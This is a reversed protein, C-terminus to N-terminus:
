RIEGLFVSYAAVGSGSGDGGAGLMSRMGSRASGAGLDSGSLTVPKGSLNCAVVVTTSTRVGAAPRRVWVLADDADRDLLTETGNRLTANDRHLHILQRYFNLLSQPDNQEMAVNATAANVGTQSGDLTGATFGPLSNPDITVPQPDDSEVVTPLKPAPLSQRPPPVYPHFSEYAPKPAAPEEPKVEPPAAPKPTVNTPTWQMVPTKGAEAVLGLEQGAELIVATRSALLMAALARELGAQAAADAQPVVRAALMLPEGRGSSRGRAGGCAAGGSAAGPPGALGAALQARLGAATATTSVIPASATLQTEKLLAAALDTDAHAPPGAILVRGGPFSNTLLRLQHLLVGIHGAGDVKSLASTPVYLGAAGGNLWTRALAVYAADAAPTQSAPVGLTVILRMQHTVAARSLDDFGERAIAGPEAAGPVADPGMDVIIGDVGLAQLYDLRQAIGALDGKGDGDSDQFKAPDIRYFVARRWWPEVTVGNGAWNRQALTQAHGAACLLVAGAFCVRQFARFVV